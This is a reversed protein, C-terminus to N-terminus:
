PRKETSEGSHSGPFPLVIALVFLALMVAIIILNTVSIQIVGWHVYRGAGEAVVQVEQM